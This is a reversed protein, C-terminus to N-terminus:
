HQCAMPDTECDDVPKDPKKRVTIDLGFQKCNTTYHDRQAAPVATLLKRAKAENGAHSAAMFCLPAHEASVPGGSCLAIVKDYHAEAFSRGIEDDQPQPEHKGPQRAPAQTSAQTPAPTSLKAAPALRRPPVPTKVPPEARLEPVPATEPPQTRETPAPPRGAVGSGGSGNPAATLAAAPAAAPPSSELPTVTPEPARAMNAADVVVAASGTRMMIVVAISGLV